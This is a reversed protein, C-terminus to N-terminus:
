CGDVFPGKSTSDVSRLCGATASHATMEEGSGTRPSTTLAIITRAGPYVVKDLSASILSSCSKQLALEAGYLYGRL